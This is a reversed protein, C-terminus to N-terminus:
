LFSGIWDEIAEGATHVLRPHFTSVGEFRRDGQSRGRDPGDIERASLLARYKKSDILLFWEGCLDVDDIAVLRAHPLTPRWDEQAFVWLEGVIDCIRQYRRLVGRVRSMRQFGVFIRTDRLNRDIVVRENARCWTRMGDLGTLFTTNGARIEEGGLDCEGLSPLAIGLHKGAKIVTEFLSFNQM